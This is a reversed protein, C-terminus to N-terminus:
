QMNFFPFLTGLSIIQVLNSSDFGTSAFCDIHNSLTRLNDFM